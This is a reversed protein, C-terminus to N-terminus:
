SVHLDFIQRVDFWHKRSLTSAGLFQMLEFLQVCEEGM